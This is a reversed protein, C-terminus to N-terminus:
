LIQLADEIIEVGQAYISNISGGDHLGSRATHMSVIYGIRVLDVCLQAVLIIETCDDFLKPFFVHIPKLINHWVV